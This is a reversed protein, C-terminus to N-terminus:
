IKNHRTKGLSVQGLSVQIVAIKKEVKWDNMGNMENM